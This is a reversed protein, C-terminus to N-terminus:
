PEVHTYYTQSLYIVIDKTGHRHSRNSSTIPGPSFIKINSLHHYIHFLVYSCGRHGGNWLYRQYEEPGFPIPIGGCM